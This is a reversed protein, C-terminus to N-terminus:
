LYETLLFSPHAVCCHKTIRASSVQSRLLSYQLLHVRLCFLFMSMLYRLTSSRNPKASLLATCNLPWKLLTIVASCSIEKVPLKQVRSSSPFCNPSGFGQTHNFPLWAPPNVLLRRKGPQPFLWRKDQLNFLSQLATYLILVNAGM